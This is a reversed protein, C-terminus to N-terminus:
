QDQSELFAILDALDDIELRRGYNDPMLNPL